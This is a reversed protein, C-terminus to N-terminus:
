REVVWVHNFVIPRSVRDREPRLLSLGVGLLQTLRHDM